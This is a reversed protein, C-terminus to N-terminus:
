ILKFYILVWFLANKIGIKYKISRKIAQICLDKDSKRSMRAVAYWIESTIVFRLKKNIEPWNSYFDYIQATELTIKFSNASLGNDSFKRYKTTYKLTSAFKYGASASKFWMELDDCYRLKTDFGGTSDFLKRSIIISSTQIFYSGDFVSVPFRDIIDQTLISRNIINGNESDFIDTLSHILDCDQNKELTDVLSQLHNEEWLDDSDLFALWNGKAKKAAINRITSAGVNITNRFYFVNQNCEKSFSEVIRKTDDSSGDEVVIIEWNKFTQYKVSNLTELIFKESNFAPICISIFIDTM